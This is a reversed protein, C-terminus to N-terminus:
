GSLCQWYIGVIGRLVSAVCDMDDPDLDVPSAGAAPTVPGIARPPLRPDSHANEVEWWLLADALVEPSIEDVGVILIQGRTALAEQRTGRMKASMRVNKCEFGIM